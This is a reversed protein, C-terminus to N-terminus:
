HICGLAELTRTHTKIKIRGLQGIGQRDSIVRYCSRGRTQQHQSVQTSSKSRNQKYVQLVGGHGIFTGDHCVHGRVVMAETACLLDTEIMCPHSSSLSGSYVFFEKMMIWFLKTLLNLNIMIWDIRRSPKGQKTTRIELSNSTKNNSNLKCAVYDCVIMHMEWNESM